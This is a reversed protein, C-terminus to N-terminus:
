LSFRGHHTSRLALATENIILMVRELVNGRRNKNAVEACPKQGAVTCERVVKRCSEACGESPEEVGTVRRRARTWAVNAAAKAALKVSTEGARAISPAVPELALSMVPPAEVSWDPRVIEM